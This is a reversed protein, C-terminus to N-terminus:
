IYRYVDGIFPPEVKVVEAGFDAMVTAAAPGFIFSALEIVRVGELVYRDDRAAETM